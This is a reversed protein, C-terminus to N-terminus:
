LHVAGITYSEGIGNVVVPNTVLFPLAGCDQAEYALVLGGMAANACDDHAHFAHDISERGGRGVRRELGLVQARLREHDLLELRGSNLLPLAAAYLESKSRASPDYRIGRKAFQERPWEGAYRDGHVTSVRYAKLLAAIEGVIIEPSFPPRWEALHDLVALTADGRQETHALALTFSDASGGSPDVFAVYAHAPLPPLSRRGPITCADLTERSIFAELDRRFEGLYEARASAEDQGLADDIVRQPVAANMARTGAQWVLIDGEVGYWRRYTEWLAGKRAHPSSIAVLLATPITAMAPRLAAIIESDPNASDDTPWFAVEDLVAGVVSYGRLSRWSATHVEIRCRTSFTLSEATRHTVLQALLPSSEILGLIYGMVTRAQRRDSAVVPLTGIEGASLVSGYDTLCALYVATLAAVKSKGGRRGVVCWAERMRETPPQRGTHEQFVSAQAESMPLGFTGALFTEWAGWTPGAFSGGLLQPDRM